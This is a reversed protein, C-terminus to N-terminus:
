GVERVIKMKWGTGRAPRRRQSAFESTQIKIRKTIWKDFGVTDFIITSNPKSPDVKTAFNQKPDRYAELLLPQPFGLSKLESMKMIAVTPSSNDWKSIAGNGFGLKRELSFISISNSECLKKIIEYM